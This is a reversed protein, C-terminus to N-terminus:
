KGGKIKQYFYGKNRYNKVIGLIMGSIIIITIMTDTIEM